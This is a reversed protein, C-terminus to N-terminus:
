PLIRADQMTKEGHGFCLGQDRSLDVDEGRELFDGEVFDLWFFDQNLDMRGPDAMCVKGAHVPRQRSSKGAHKSMFTNEGSVSKASMWASTLNDIDPFLDLMDLLIVLNQEAEVGATGARLAVCAM